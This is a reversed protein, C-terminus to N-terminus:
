EPKNSLLDEYGGGNIVDTFGLAELMRKAKGARGGVKCYVVISREKSEGFEAVREEIETHPILVAGELHGANFEKDSRVDVLLAGQNIIRWVPQEIMGVSESSSAAGEAEERLPMSSVDGGQNCAALLFPLAVVAMAIGMKMVPVRDYIAM